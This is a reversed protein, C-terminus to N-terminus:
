ASSYQINLSGFFGVHFGPAPSILSPRQRTVYLVTDFNCNAFNERVLKREDGHEAGRFLSVPTYITGLPYVILVTQSCPPLTNSSTIQIIDRPAVKVHNHSGFQEPDQLAGCRVKVM